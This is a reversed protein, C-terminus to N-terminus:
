LHSIVGGDMLRMEAASHRREARRVLEQECVEFREGGGLALRDERRRAGGAEGGRYCSRYRDIYRYTYIYIYIDM